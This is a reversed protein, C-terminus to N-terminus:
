QRGARDDPLRKVPPGISICQVQDHAGPLLFLRVRRCYLSTPPHQTSHEHCCSMKSRGATRCIFRPLDGFLAPYRRKSFFIVGLITEIELTQLYIAQHAPQQPEPDTGRTKLCNDRSEIAVCRALRTDSSVWVRMIIYRPTMQDHQLLFCAFLRGEGTSFQARASFSPLIYINQICGRVFACVYVYTNCM